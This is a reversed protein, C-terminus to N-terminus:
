WGEADVVTNAYARAPWPAHYVAGSVTLQHWQTGPNISGPQFKDTASLWWVDNVFAQGDQDRGNVLILTGVGDFPVAMREVDFIARNHLGDDSDSSLSVYRWSATSLQPDSGVITTEQCKLYVSQAYVAANVQSAYCIDPLNSTLAWNRGLDHSSWVDDLNYETGDSDM